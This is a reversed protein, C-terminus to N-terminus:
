KASVVELERVVVLRTDLDPKRVIDGAVVVQKEVFDGLDYKTSELYCLTTGGKVLRFSPSSKDGLNVNLKPQRVLWGIELQKQEKHEVVRKLGELEEDYKKSADALESKLKDGVGKAQNLEERLKQLRGIEAIRSNVTERLSADQTSTKVQDYLALAPAYDPNTKANEVAVQDEAAQFSKHIEKERSATESAKKAEARKSEYRREAEATLRNLEASFSSEPGLNKVFQGSVWVPLDPPAAVEVWEDSESVFRMKTGKDLQALPFQKSSPAPRLNVHDANLTVFGDGGQEAYPKSVWCTYGLPVRVKMWGASESLIVVKEGKDLKRLSWASESNQARLNVSEGTIEGVSPSAAGDQPHGAAPRAIVVAGFMAVCFGFSRIGSM